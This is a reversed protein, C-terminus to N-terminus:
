ERHELRRLRADLERQSAHLRVNVSAIERMAAVMAANCAQQDRFVWGMVRLCFRQVPRLNFPFMSLRAPWRSRPAGRQAAASILGELPGTDIADLANRGDAPDGFQRRL